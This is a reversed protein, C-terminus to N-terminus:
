VTRNSSFGLFVNKTLSCEYLYTFKPTFTPNVTEDEVLMESSVSPHSNNHNIRTQEILSSGSLNQWTACSSSIHSVRVTRDQNSVGSADVHGDPPELRM